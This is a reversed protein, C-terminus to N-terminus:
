RQLLEMTVIKGIADSLDQDSTVIHLKVRSEDKKPDYWRTEVITGGNVAQVQFRIPDPLDIRGTEDDCMALSNPVAGRGRRRVKPEEEYVRVDRNFDWGWKMLNSWLWRIM